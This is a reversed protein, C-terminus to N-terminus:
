DGGSGSAVWEWGSRPLLEVFIILEGLMFGDRDSEV